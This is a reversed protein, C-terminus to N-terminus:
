LLGKASIKWFTDKLALRPLKGICRCLRSCQFDLGDINQTYVRTLKNTNKELLEVFRHAITAKWQHQQTGLIFPRRVELYVLSLCNRFIRGLLCNRFYPGRGDAAPTINTRVHLSNQNSLRTCAVLPALTLFELHSVASVPRNVVCYIPMGFPSSHVRGTVPLQNGALVVRTDCRIWNTLADAM